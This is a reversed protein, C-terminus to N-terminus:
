SEVPLVEARRMTKNDQRELRVQDAEEFTDFRKAWEHTPGWIPQIRGDVEELDEVVLEGSKIIFM